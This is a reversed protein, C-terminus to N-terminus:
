RHVCSKGWSHCQATFYANFGPHQLRCHLVQLLHASQRKGWSSDGRVHYSGNRGKSFALIEGTTKLWLLWLVPLWLVVSHSCMCSTGWHRQLRSAPPQWIFLHDEPQPDVTEGFWSNTLIQGAGRWEEDLVRCRPRLASFGQLHGSDRHPGSLSLGTLCRYLSFRNKPSLKSVEQLLLIHNAARLHQLQHTVLIRCKDKLLGCICRIHACIPLLDIVARAGWSCRDISMSWHTQGNNCVLTADWCQFWQM